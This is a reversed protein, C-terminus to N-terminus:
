KAKQEKLHPFEPGNWEDRTFNRGLTVKMTKALEEAAATVERYKTGAPFSKLTKIITEGYANGRNLTITPRVHGADGISFGGILLYECQKAKRKDRM